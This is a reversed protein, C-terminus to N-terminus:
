LSEFPNPRRDAHVHIHIHTHFSSHLANCYSEHWVAVLFYCNTLRGGSISSFASCYHMTCLWHSRKPYQGRTLKLSAEAATLNWSRMAPYLRLVEILLKPCQSKMQGWTKHFGQALLVEPNQPKTAHDDIRAINEEWQNLYNRLWYLFIRISGVIMLECVSWVFCPIEWMIKMIKTWLPVVFYSIFLFNRVRLINECRIHFVFM